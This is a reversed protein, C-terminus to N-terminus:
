RWRQQQAREGVEAGMNCITAMGTASLSATGEGFYELIHGTGGQVTLKGALALIVDKPAAWGQLRGRLHVGTVQPAKLEWPLDAMADVADAGGVGIALMGLGGANPTHSDSLPSVTLPKPWPPPCARATYTVGVQAWCSAARPPMTRWCSRTFSAQISRKAAREGMCAWSASTGSGPRWFGMGFAATSSELFAFIEANAAKGAELDAAAGRHAEILHDCHVTTPVATRRLGSLMFQLIAMQASADQM